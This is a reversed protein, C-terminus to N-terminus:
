IEKESEIIEKGIEDKKYKAYAKAMRTHYGRRAYSSGNYRRAFSAWDKKRLSEVMGTETIFIAFLQLQELESYSMRRVFEDVSKCGCIRYNFGGIQFMGWFTGMNAGQANIKRMKILLTWEKLAYGKLGEPVKENKAGATSEVKNKYKAYMSNDFNIVPIGPAWFGQMAKGAEIEVVAKIAAVEVDLEEAVLQFDQETLHTYRDEENNLSDLSAINIAMNEHSATDTAIVMNLTDPIIEPNDKDLAFLASTLVGGLILLSFLTIKRNEYGRM